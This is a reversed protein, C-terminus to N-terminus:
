LTQGERNMGALTEQARPRRFDPSKSSRDGGGWGEYFVM